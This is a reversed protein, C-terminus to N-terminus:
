QRTEDQDKGDFNGNEEELHFTVSTERPKYDYYSDKTHSATDTLEIKEAPTAEEVKSMQTQKRERYYRLAEKRNARADIIEDTDLYSLYSIKIHM